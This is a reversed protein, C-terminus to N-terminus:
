GDQLPYSRYYLSHDLKVDCKPVPIGFLYIDLLDKTKRLDHYLRTKYGLLWNEYGGVRCVKETVEPTIIDCESSTQPQDSSDKQSAGNQDVLYINGSHLHGLPEIGRKYFKLLAQLVLSSCYLYSWFKLFVCVQLIQSGFRRM